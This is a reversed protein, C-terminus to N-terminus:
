IGGLILGTANVTTQAASQYSLGNSLVYGIIIGLILAGIIWLITSTKRQQPIAMVRGKLEGVLSAHQLASYAEGLEKRLEKVRFRFPTLESMLNAVADVKLDPITKEKITLFNILNPVYVPM